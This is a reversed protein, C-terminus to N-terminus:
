VDTQTWVWWTYLRKVAKHQKVNTVTVWYAFLFGVSQAVRPLPLWPPPPPLQPLMRTVYWMGPSISYTPWKSTHFGVHLCPNCADDFICLLSPNDRPVRKATRVTGFVEVFLALSVFGFKHGLGYWDCTHWLFVDAIPICSDHNSWWGNTAPEKLPHIWTRDTM